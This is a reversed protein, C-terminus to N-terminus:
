AIICYKLWEKSVLKLYQSRTSLSSQLDCWCILYSHSLRPKNSYQIFCQSTLMGYDLLPDLWGIRSRGSSHTSWEIPDIQHSTCPQHMIVVIMLKYSYGGFVTNSEKWQMWLNVYQLQLRKLDNCWKWLQLDYSELKCRTQRLLYRCPWLIM